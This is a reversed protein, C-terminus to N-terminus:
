CQYNGRKMYKDKKMQPRNTRYSCATSLDFLGNDHLKQILTPSNFFNDFFVTDKLVQRLDLVLSSVLNLERKEKRGQYLELQYVYGTESDCRCWYKFGWKIPKNKIYQKASSRGKFKCMHEDVSQFLSNSLSEAFIKSLHEIVRRIKCSKDTKDDNGNNAFHLNRLISQFRARIMVNQIRKNGICKDASRYDEFSPLKSIGM